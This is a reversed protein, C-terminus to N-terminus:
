GRHSVRTEEAEGLLPVGLEGPLVQGLIVLAQLADQVARRRVGGGGGGGGGLGRCVARGGGTIPWRLGDSWLLTGHGRRGSAVGPVGESIGRRRVGPGTM